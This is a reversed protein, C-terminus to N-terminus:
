NRCIRNGGVRKVLHRMELVSITALVQHVPLGTTVVVSDIETPEAMITQLIVQEIENLKLEAPRHLSHRTGDDNTSVMPTALPGLGELIDDVSTVLMAGDRILNHCGASMRNDIPGPLAFVERGQEGALRASILAGSREAAEIVLVGLSLGTVIRNRQPFAGSKPSQMTPYESVVAGHASIELSLEGHEPPYLNLLGSGLVAITRGGAALAGRHAAADIGRAMGSVITFGALALSHSLREAQRIGYSTAHRTGVIAIALEDNTEITGRCFLMSPADSIEALRRPYEAHDRSILKISHQRCRALEASIDVRETATVLARTLKVGVGPVRRLQEPAAALVEGPSGFTEVLLRYNIPGVGPVLSLCLATAVPDHLDVRSTQRTEPQPNSTNM